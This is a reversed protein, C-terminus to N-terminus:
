NTYNPNWQVDNARDFPHLVIKLNVKGMGWMCAGVRDFPHLVDGVGIACNPLRAPGTNWINPTRNVSPVNEHPNKKLYLEFCNIFFREHALIELVCAVLYEHLASKTCKYIKKCIVWGYDM